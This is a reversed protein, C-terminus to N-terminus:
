HGSKLRENNLPPMGSVRCFAMMTCTFLQVIEDHQNLTKIDVTVMGRDPKSKSQNIKVVEAEVRLTDNPYTPKLWSIKGEVGILGTAIPISEVMLRMTIGATQWGSAVLQGFFTAEAQQEDMHYPQPDYSNAFAKIEDISVQEERSVWKDGIKLDELYLQQM